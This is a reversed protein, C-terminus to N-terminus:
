HVAWLSTPVVTTSAACRYTVKVKMVIYANWLVQMWGLRKWTQKSIGPFNVTHFLRFNAGEWTFCKEHFCSASTQNSQPFSVKVSNKTFILSFYRSLSIRYNRCQSSSPLFWSTKWCFRLLNPNPFSASACYLFCPFKSM